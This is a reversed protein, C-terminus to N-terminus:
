TDIWKAVHYLLYLASEKGEWSNEVVFLQGLEQFTEQSDIIFM